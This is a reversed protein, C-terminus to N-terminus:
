LEAKIKEAQEVLVEDSAETRNDITTSLSTMGAVDKIPFLKIHVHPVEFGEVVVCTRETDLAKDSARAINRAITFLHLYEEETVDFLYGVERKLIIMSQGKVSPFKDMIAVCVDDEYIFFGPIERKIIKTFITSM